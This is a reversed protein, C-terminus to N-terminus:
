LKGTGRCHDCNYHKHSQGKYLQEGCESCKGNEKGQLSFGNQTGEKLIRGSGNCWSCTRYTKSSSSTTSRSSAPDESSSSSSSSSPTTSSVIKEFYFGKGDCIDCSGTGNCERCKERNDTYYMRRKSMNDIHRKREGWYGTGKCSVCKKKGECTPCRHKIYNVKIATQNSVGSSSSRTVTSPSTSNSFYQNTSSQISSNSNTSTGAIEDVIANMFIDCSSVTSVLTIVLVLLLLKNLKLKM